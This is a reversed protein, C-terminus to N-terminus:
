PIIIPRIRGHLRYVSFDQRDVTFIERVNEREAVRVLAADALDMERNSYKLMLERIRPVDPLGLPLIQVGQELLMEWITEQAGQIGRLMYITETIVPWITGMPQNISHLAAACAVHHQDDARVLAILPGADVLIVIAVGHRSCNRSSVDRIAQSRRIGEGLLASSDNSFTMPRPLM